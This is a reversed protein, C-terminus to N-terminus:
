HCSMEKDILAKVKNAKGLKLMNLPSIMGCMPHLNNFWDWTKKEDGKFHKKVKEFYEHDIM